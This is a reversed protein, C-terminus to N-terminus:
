ASRRRRAAVSRSRAAERQEPLRMWEAQWAHFCERCRPEHHGSTRKENPPLAPKGCGVCPVKNRDRYERRAVTCCARCYRHRSRRYVVRKHRSRPFDADPKWKKCSQCLLEHARVSTTRAKAACSLCRRSGNSRSLNNMPGGCDDCRGRTQWARSYARQRDLEGTIVAFRIAQKTVGFEAALAAISEGAAHRARAADWDFKRTYVRPM